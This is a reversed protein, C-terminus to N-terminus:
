PLPLPKRMLFCILLVQTPAPVNLRGMDKVEPHLILCLCTNVSLCRHMSILNSLDRPSKQCRKIQEGPLSMSGVMPIHHCNRKLTHTQVHTPIHSFAWTSIRLREEVENISVPDSLWIYLESIHSRVIALKSQPIQRQRGLSSNCTAPWGVFVLM